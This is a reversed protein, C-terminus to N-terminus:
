GSVLPTLLGMLVLLEDLPSVEITQPMSVRFDAREITLAATVRRLRM